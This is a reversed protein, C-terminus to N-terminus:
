KMQTIFGTSYYTVTVDQGNAIFNICAAPTGPYAPYWCATYYNTSLPFQLLVRGSSDTLGESVYSQGSCSFSICNSSFVAM